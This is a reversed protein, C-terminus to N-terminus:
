PKAVEASSAREIAWRMPPGTTILDWTSVPPRM